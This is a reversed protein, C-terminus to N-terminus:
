GQGVEELPEEEGVNGSEDGENGREISPTTTTPNRDRPGKSEEWSMSLAVHELTNPDPRTQDIQGPKTEHCLHVHLNQEIPDGAKKHSMPIGPLIRIFVKM